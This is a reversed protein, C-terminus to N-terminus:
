QSRVLKDLTSQDGIYLVELDSTPEFSNKRVVINGDILSMTGVISTVVFCRPQKIVLRFDKIPGQWTNASKLIFRVLLYGYNEAPNLNSLFSSLKPQSAFFQRYIRLNNRYTPYDELHGYAGGGDAPRYAHTIQVTSQAPFIQYWFYKIHTEYYISYPDTEINQYALGAKAARTYGVVAINGLRGKPIARRCDVPISHKHLFFTVDQGEKFGRVKANAGEEDDRVFARKEIRAHIPVGNVTTEFDSPYSSHQFWGCKIPPLPFAVITRIDKKSNNKFQYSVVILDPSIELVERDMSIAPSHKFVLGGAGLASYADDARAAQCILTLAVALLGLWVTQVHKM